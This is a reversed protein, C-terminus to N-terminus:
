GIRRRDLTAESTMKKRGNSNRNDDPQETNKIRTTRFATFSNKVSASHETTGESETKAKNKQEKSLLPDMLLNHMELNLVGLPNEVSESTDRDDSSEEHNKGPSPCLWFKRRSGCPRSIGFQVKIASSPFSGQTTACDSAMKGNNEQQV